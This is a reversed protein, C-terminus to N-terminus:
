LVETGMSFLRIQILNFSKNQGEVLSFDSAAGYCTAGQGISLAAPRITYNASKLGGSGIVAGEEEAL